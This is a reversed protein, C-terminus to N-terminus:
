NYERFEELFWVAFVLQVSDVITKLHACTSGDSINMQLPKDWPACFLRDVRAELLAILVLLQQMQPM